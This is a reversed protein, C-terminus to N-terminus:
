ARKLIVPALSGVAEAVIKWLKKAGELGESMPSYWFAAYSGKHTAWPRREIGAKSPLGMRKQLEHIEFLQDLNGPRAVVKFCHFCNRSLIGYKQAYIRNWLLCNRDGSAKIMIWPSDSFAAPEGTPKITGEPTIRYVQAELDPQIPTLIDLRGLEEYFAVENRGEYLPAELRFSFPQLPVGLLSRTAGWHNSTLSRGFTTASTSSTM